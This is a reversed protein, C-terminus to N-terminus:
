SHRFSEANSDYMGVGNRGLKCESIRSATEENM